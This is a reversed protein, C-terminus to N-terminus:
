YEMCKDFDSESNFHDDNYYKDKKNKENSKENSSNLKAEFFLVNKDDELIVDPESFYSENEKLSRLITILEKNHTTYDNDVRVGWYSIKTEGASSGVISEIISNLAGKKQFYRFVVWSLADESTSFGIKNKKNERNKINISKNLVDNLSERVNEPINELYNKFIFTPKKGNSCGVEHEVCKRYCKEYSTAREIKIKTYSISDTMNKGCVPCEVKKLEM